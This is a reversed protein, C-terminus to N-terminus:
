KLRKQRYYKFNQKILEGYIGCFNFLKLSVKIREFLAELLRFSELKRQAILLKKEESRIKSTIEQQEKERIKKM